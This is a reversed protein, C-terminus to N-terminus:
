GADGSFSKMYRPAETGVNFLLDLVSVGHDFAGFCQPYEPYGAYSMYELAVGAAAFKEPEIYDRASPGSLYARAGAARCISVLRDTKQGEGGYDRSWRFPTTIGLLACLGALLRCNVESLRELEAVAEYLARVPGAYDAFCPAKRYNQELIAWHREAWGPEQIRTEEITQLYRGKSVVPITLWAPGQPTKIRNRNRWDRRTFQVDDFLVFEDVMHIIDFYGKWPIYSSQLIAIKKNM